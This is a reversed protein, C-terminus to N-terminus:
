MLEVLFLKRTSIVRDCINYQCILFDFGVKGEKAYGDVSHFSISMSDAWEDGSVFDQHFTKNLNIAFSALFHAYMAWQAMKKQRTPFGPVTRQRCASTCFAPIGQHFWYRLLLAHSFSFAPFFNKKEGYFTIFYPVCPALSYEFNNSSSTLFEQQCLTIIM